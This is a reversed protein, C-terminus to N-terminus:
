SRGGKALARLRSLRDHMQAKEFWEAEHYQLGDTLALIERELEMVRDRDTPERDPPEAPLGLAPENIQVLLRGATGLAADSKHKMEQVLGYLHSIQRRMTLLGERLLRCEKELETYAPPTHTGSMM